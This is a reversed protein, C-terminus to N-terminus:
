CNVGYVAQVALKINARDAAEVMRRCEEITMGFPKETIIHKGANAAALVVEERLVPQTCLDIVEVADDAILEQYDAYIRQIGFREQAAKQANAEPDAIAVVSWGAEQYAPAHAGQAISGLGVIGIRWDKRKPLPISDPISLESPTVRINQM